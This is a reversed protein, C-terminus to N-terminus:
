AKVKKMIVLTISMGNSWSKAIREARKGHGCFIDVHKSGKIRSGTDEVKGMFNREPIYIITGYPYISKDAAITGVRPRTGSSTEVGEGNMNIADLYEEETSYDERRPGFYGTGYGKVKKIVVFKVKKIEIEEKIEDKVRPLPRKEVIQPKVYPIYAIAPHPFTCLMIMTLAIHMGQIIRPKM